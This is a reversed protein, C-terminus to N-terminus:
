GRQDRTRWSGGEGWTRGGRASSACHTGAGSADALTSSRWRDDAGGQGNRRDLRPRVKRQGGSGHCLCHDSTESMPLSIRCAHREGGCRTTTECDQEHRDEGGSETAHDGLRGVAPFGAAVPLLGAAMRISRTYESTAQASRGARPRRVTRSRAARAVREEDLDGEEVCSTPRRGEVYGRREGQRDVLLLVPATRAKTRAHGDGLPLLGGDDRAADRRRGVLDDHCHLGAVAEGLSAVDSCRNSTRVVRTLAAGADSCPM